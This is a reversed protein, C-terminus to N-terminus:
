KATTMKTKTEEVYRKICSCAHWKCQKTIIQNKDYINNNNKELPVKMEAKQEHNRKIIIFYVCLKDSAQLKGDCKTLHINFWHSHTQTNTHTCFFFWRFSFFHSPVFIFKSLVVLLCIFSSLILFFVSYPVYGFIKWPIKGFFYFAWCIELHFIKSTAQLNIKRYKKRM